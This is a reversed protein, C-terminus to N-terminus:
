KEKRLQSIEQKALLDRETQYNSVATLYKHDDASPKRGLIEAARTNLKKKQETLWGDYSEKEIGLLKKYYRPVPLKKGQIMIFLNNRVQDANNEIYDAGLKKSMLRFPLTRNGYREKAEFGTLWKDKDLYNSVYRMSGYTVTGAYVMGKKWREDWPYEKPLGFIIAHYHPRLSEEGYEGAIYYKITIKPNDKRLLKMWLQIPRKSVSGDEPLHDDDYTLTLFTGVKYVELEYLM